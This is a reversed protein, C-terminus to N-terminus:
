NTFQREGSKNMQKAKTIVLLTSPRKFPDNQLLVDDRTLPVEAASAFSERRHDYLIGHSCHKNVTFM